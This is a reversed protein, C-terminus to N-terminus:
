LLEEGRAEWVEGRVEVAEESCSSNEYATICLLLFLVFICLYGFTCSTRVILIICVYRPICTVIMQLDTLITYNDTNWWQIMCFVADEEQSQSPPPCSEPFNQSELDEAWKETWSPLYKWWQSLIYIIHIYHIQSWLQLLHKKHLYWLLVM